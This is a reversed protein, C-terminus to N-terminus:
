SLVSSRHRRLPPCGPGGPVLLFFSATDGTVQVPAVLIPCVPGSLSGRRQAPGPPASRPSTALQYGLPCLLPPCIVCPSLFSCGLPVLFRLGVLPVYCPTRPCPLSPGTRPWRGGRFVGCYASAHFLSLPAATCWSCLVRLARSCHCLPPRWTHPAPPPLFRRCPGPSPCLAM